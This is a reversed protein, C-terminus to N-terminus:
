SSHVQEFRQIPHYHQAKLRYDQLDVNRRLSAVAQGRGSPFITLSVKQYAEERIAQPTLWRAEIACM